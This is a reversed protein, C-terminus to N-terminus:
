KIHSLFPFQFDSSTVFQQQLGVPLLFKYIAFEDLHPRNLTIGNQQSIAPHNRFIIACERM